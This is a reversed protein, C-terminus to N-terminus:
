RPAAAAPIPPLGPVGDEPTLGGLARYVRGWYLARAVGAIATLMVHAATILLAIGSNFHSGAALISWLVFSLACDVLAARFTAWPDNQALKWAHQLASVVGRRNQALSHLALQFLVSVVAAYACCFLLLPGGVLYLIFDPRGPSRWQFALLGVGLVTLDLLLVCLWLGFTSWLLGKGAALADRLRARGHRTVCDNWHKPASLRALGVVILMLPPMLFPLLAALTDALKQDELGATAARAGIAPLLLVSPYLFGALWIWSPRAALHASEALAAQAERLSLRDGPNGIWTSM